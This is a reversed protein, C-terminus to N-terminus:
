WEPTNTKGLHKTKFEKGGLTAVVYPRVQDGDSDAVDKGSLVVVRLTGEKSPGENTPPTRPFTQSENGLNYGTVPPVSSTAVPEVIHTSPPEQVVPVGSANTAGGTMATLWRDADGSGTKKGAFIGKVGKGVNGVGDIVGKGALGVGGTVVALPAGGLQTAGRTATGFTATSFTSTNKRSKTIIEPTFLMKLTVSGKQGHKPTVLPVTVESQTFPELEELDIHAKSLSTHQELQNWDFVELVMEAGVRSHVVCEASENWRPSLTKKKTETKHVKDGNLTLVVYPDSTGSRDAAYVDRGEIIDVHLRGQDIFRISQTIVYRHKPFLHRM